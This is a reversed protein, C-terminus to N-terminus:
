EKAAAAPAAEEKKEGEASKEGEAAPKAEGEVPAPAAAAEEAAEEAAEKADEARHEAIEAQMEVQKAKMEAASHEELKKKGTIRAEWENKEKVAKIADIPMLGEVKIGMSTCTGILELVAAKMDSANLSDFKIRAVKIINDIPIDAVMERQAKGSAKQLGLEKKILAATPPTGISIEFSKDDKNITVKVPVQMGNMEATKENIADVVKNVPIGTPGLKPGLPPGASAKGGNVLLDITETAM